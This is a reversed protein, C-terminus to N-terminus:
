AKGLDKALGMLYFNIRMETMKLGWEVRRKM